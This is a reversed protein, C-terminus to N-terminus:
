LEVIRALESDHVGEYAEGVNGGGIGEGGRVDMGEDDLSESTGGFM